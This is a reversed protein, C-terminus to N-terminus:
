AARKSHANIYAMVDGFTLIKEAEDDPIEIDFKEEIAMVLEVTDLSDAGLDEVFKATPSIQEVNISLHQAILKKVKDENTEM